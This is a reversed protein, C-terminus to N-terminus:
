SNGIWINASQMKIILDPQDVVTNEKKKKKNNNLKKLVGIKIYNM